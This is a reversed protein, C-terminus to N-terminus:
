TEGRAVFEDEFRNFAKNFLKIQLNSPKTAVVLKQAMDEWQYVNMYGRSLPTIYM